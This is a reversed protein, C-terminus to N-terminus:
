QSFKLNEESLNDDNVKEKPIKIVAVDFISDKNLMFDAIGAEEMDEIKAVKLSNEEGDSHGGFQFWM